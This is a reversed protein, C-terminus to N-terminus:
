GGWGRGREGTVRVEVCVCVECGTAATAWPAGLRLGVVRHLGQGQAVLELTPWARQWSPGTAGRGSPAAGVRAQGALWAAVVVAM